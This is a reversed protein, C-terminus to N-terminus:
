QLKFDKPHFPLDGGKIKKDPYHRPCRSNATNPYLTKSLDEPQSDRYYVSNYDEVICEPDYKFLREINESILIQDIM